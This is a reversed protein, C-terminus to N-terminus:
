LFKPLSLLKVEEVDAEQWYNSKDKKQSDDLNLDMNSVAAAIQKFPCFIHLSVVFHIYFLYLM